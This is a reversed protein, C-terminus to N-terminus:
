NAKEGENSDDSVDDAPPTWPAGAAIAIRRCAERADKADLQHRDIRFAAFLDDLTLPQATDTIAGFLKQRLTSEGQPEAGLEISGSMLIRGRSRIQWTVRLVKGIWYRQHIFQRLADLTPVQALALSGLPGGPTTEVPLRVLEVSFTDLPYPYLLRVVSYREDDTLRKGLERVDHHPLGRVHAEVYARADDSLQALEEESPVSTARAHPNARGVGASPMSTPILEDQGKGSAGTLGVPGMPGVAGHRAQEEAEFHKKANAEVAAVIASLFQSYAEPAMYASEIGAATLLDELAAPRGELAARLFRGIADQRERYSRERNIKEMRRAKERLTPLAREAAIHASAQRLRELYPTLTAHWEPPSFPRFGDALAGAAGAALFALFSLPAEEETFPPTEPTGLGPLPMPQGVQGLEEDSLARVTGTVPDFGYAEGPVCGAARCAGPPESAASPAGAGGTGKPPVHGLQVLYSDLGDLITRGFAFTQYVPREPPADAPAPVPAPRHPKKRRLGFM